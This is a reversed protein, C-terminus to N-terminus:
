TQPNPDNSLALRKIITEVIQAPALDADVSIGAENAQLPQLTELQSELLDKPMFHGTRLALRTALTVPDSFLHVFQVAGCASRLADRYEVRLASCAVVTSAGESARDDMWDRVSELWPMRQVSTLPIGSRMRSVNEESHLDDADLYHLALEGALARAVTSKGSGSAGMVVVHGIRDM